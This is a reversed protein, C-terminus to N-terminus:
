RPQIAALHRSVAVRAGLWGLLMSLSLLYVSNTFGMASFSFDSQYLQALRSIPGHLLAFGTTVILWAAVGGFFGYWAGTYLFPRSVFADTGGVLKTVIIEDRRNEIALRITNGIALLVGLGLLAGLGVVVRQALLMIENLKKVWALDLSAEQVWPLQALVRQLQQLPLPALADNAPSVILTAPLPNEQLEDLVDGFGSLAQFEALAQDASLLKVEAVAPLAEVRAVLQQIQDSAAEKHLYVSITPRSDWREALQTINNLSLYLGTPLALAIAVVLSTMLTQVPATVLRRLADTFSLRHHLLYSRRLSSWSTKAQIAGQRSNGSSAPAARKPESTRPRRTAGRSM